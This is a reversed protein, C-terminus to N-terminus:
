TAKSMKQNKKEKRERQEAAKSRYCYHNKILNFVACLPLAVPASVTSLTHSHKAHTLKSENPLGCKHERM